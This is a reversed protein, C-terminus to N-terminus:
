REFENKIKIFSKQQLYANIFFGALSLRITVYAIPTILNIVKPLAGRRSALVNTDIAYIYPSPLKFVILELLTIALYAIAIYLTTKLLIKRNLSIILIVIGIVLTLLGFIYNDNIKLLASGLTIIGLTLLLYSGNKFMNLSQIYDNFKLIINLRSKKIDQEEKSLKEFKEETPNFIQNAVDKRLRPEEISELVTNPFIGKNLLFQGEKILQKKAELSM